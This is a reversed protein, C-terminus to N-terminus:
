NNGINFNPHMQMQSADFSTLGSAPRSGAKELYTATNKAIVKGDLYIPQSITVMM